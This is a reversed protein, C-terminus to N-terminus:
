AAVKKPGRPKDSSTFVHALNLGADECQKELKAKYAICRKVYEPDSLPSAARKLLSMYAKREEPSLKRLDALDPLNAM